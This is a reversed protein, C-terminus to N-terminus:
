PGYPNDDLAMLSTACEPQVNLTVTGINSAICYGHLLWTFQMMKPQLM